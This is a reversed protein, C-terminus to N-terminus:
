NLSFLGDTCSLITGTPISYFNLAKWSDLSGSYFLCFLNDCGTFIDNGVNRLSAPICVSELNYCNYFARSSLTILSESLEVGRLNDCYAFADSGIYTITPPLHIATLNDCNYFCSDSLATVTQGSVTDPVILVGNGSYARADFYLVGDHVSFWPNEPDTTNKGPRFVLFVGLGIAFILVLALIAPWRRGQKPPTPVSAGCYPCFRGCADISQGCSLCFM